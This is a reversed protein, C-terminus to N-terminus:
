GNTIGGRVPWAYFTATTRLAHTMVGYFMACYWARTGLWAAPTATWYGPLGGAWTFLPDLPPGSRGLDLLSAMERRNPLRWDGRGDFTLAECAAVAADWSAFAANFPAGPSVSPAAIWELGTVGDLVTGGAAARWRPAMPHGAQHDGDDGAVASATCGTPPLATFTVPQILSGNM